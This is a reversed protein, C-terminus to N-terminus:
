SAPPRRTTGQSLLGRVVAVGIPVAAKLFLELMRSQAAPRPPPAIRSLARRFRRRPTEPRRARVVMAVAGGVVAVVAVGIGIAVAPHKRAQLKLDLVEHRRRDLESLYTGLEDRTAEIEGRLRGIEVAPEPKLRAPEEDM